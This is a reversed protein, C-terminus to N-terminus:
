RLSENLESALLRSKENCQATRKTTCMQSHTHVLVLICFWILAIFVNCYIAKFIDRRESEKNSSIVSSKLLCCKEAGRFHRRNSLKPRWPVEFYPPLASVVVM